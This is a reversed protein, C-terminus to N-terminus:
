KHSSVYERSKSKVYFEDLIMRWPVIVKVRGVKIYRGVSKFIYRLRRQSSPHLPSKKGKIIVPDMDCVKMHIRLEVKKLYHILSSFLRVWNISM